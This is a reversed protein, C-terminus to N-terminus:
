LRARVKCCGTEEEKTNNNNGSNNSNNTNTNNTNNNNSIIHNRTTVKKPPPVDMAPSCTFFNFPKLAFGVYETPMIPWDETRPVHTLGFTHWLVVDTDVINRNAMAWHELGDLIEKQFPYNGAPYMERQDFPTVWLNHKLFGARKVIKSNDNAFPVPNSGGPVLKYGCMQGNRNFSHPNVVKWYRGSAGNVNRKAEQETNLLTETAFFASNYPNDEGPPVAQINVEQVSNHNGDLQMDLRAVFFHQHIPAYLNPGIITGFPGPSEGDNLASTSLIGTLKAEFKINGDQFFYWYFGYDYNSITTFFSVVLKRSRRVESQGSRWDKHKWLFGHDEEHMCV